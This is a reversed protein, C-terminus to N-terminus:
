IPFYRIRFPIINNVLIKCYLVSSFTTQGFKNPSIRIEMRYLIPYYELEGFRLNKKTFNFDSFVM